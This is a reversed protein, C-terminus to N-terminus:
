RRKQIIVVLIVLVIGATAIGPFIVGPGFTFGPDSLGTNTTDSSNSTIDSTTETSLPPLDTGVVITDIATGQEGRFIFKDCDAILESFEYEHITRQSHIVLEDDRSIYVDGDALRTINYVHWGPTPTPTDNIWIDYNFLMYKASQEFISSYNWRCFSLRYRLDPPYASEEPHLYISYGEFDEASTGTVAFLVDTVDEVDEYLEFLWTGFLQTSPHYIMNTGVFSSTLAYKPSTPPDFSGQLVTWDNYNGDSFDDSWAVVASVPTSFLGIGLLLIVAAVTATYLTRNEM